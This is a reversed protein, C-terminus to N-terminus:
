GECISEQLSFIYGELFLRSPDFCSSMLLQKANTIKTLSLVTKGEAESQHRVLRICICNFSWVQYLLGGFIYFAVNFIVNSVLYNYLTFEGENCNTGQWGRPCMCTYMNLQSVCTATNLCPSSACEDIDPFIIINLPVDCFQYSVFIM